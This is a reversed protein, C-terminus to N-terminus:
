FLKINPFVIHRVYKTERLMWLLQKFSIFKDQGIHTKYNTYFCKIALSAAETTQCNSLGNSGTYRHAALITCIPVGNSELPSSILRGHNRKSSKLFRRYFNCFFPPPFYYTWFFEPLCFKISRKGEHVYWVNM